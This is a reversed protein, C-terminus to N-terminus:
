IDEKGYQSLIIEQYIKSTKKLQEHTGQSEIVGENLVIINDANLITGIRQAVIIITADSYNKQITKRIKSDTKFDLASFCDDFILIKPNKALARAISVRQKQGGSLNAGGQSVEKDLTFNSLEAYKLTKNLYDDKIKKDGLNLNSKITGAFLKAKQTVYGIQDRLNFEDINKIDHNDILISGETVEYLKPILQVITSKGSGTSGIFATISGPKAHFSINKLIYDDADPYKFSVNKFEIEGIVNKLKDTQNTKDEDLTNMVEMIRKYSIGARPLFIFLMSITLFAMVIQIAYQQFALMNGIAGVNTATSSVIWIIAISVGNLIAMIYPNLIAMSRNLFQETKSYKENIKDYKEEETIQQNFARIVLIGNLTERTKGNVKDLLKQIISFKPLVVFYIVLLLILILAVAISVVIALSSMGESKIIAKIVGGIGMMLALTIMRFMMTAAMQIQNIDNNTRTILSSTQFKKYNSRSFNTVKSFIKQRFFRAIDAGFKSTIYSVFIAIGSGILTVILMKVGTSFIFDMNSKIIGNNVIESMYEPLKLNALAQICTFGIIVLIIKYYKKILEKIM